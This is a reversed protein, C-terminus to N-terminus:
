HIKQERREVLHVGGGFCRDARRRGGGGGGGRHARRRRAARCVRGEGERLLLVRSQHLRLLQREVKGQREREDRGGSARGGFERRLGSAVRAGRERVCGGGGSLDHLLVLRLELLEARLLQLEELLQLHLREVRSECEACM